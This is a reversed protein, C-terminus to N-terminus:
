KNVWYKFLISKHINIKHSPKYGLVAKNQQEFIKWSQGNSVQNKYRESMSWDFHANEKQFGTWKEISCSARSKNQTNGIATRSDTIEGFLRPEMKQLIAKSVLVQASPTSTGLHTGNRRPDKWHCLLFSHIYSGTYVCMDVINMHTVMKHTYYASIFEYQHRWSFDMVVHIM